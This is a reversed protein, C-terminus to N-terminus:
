DDIGFKYKNQQIILKWHHLFIEAPAGRHRLVPLQASGSIDLYM